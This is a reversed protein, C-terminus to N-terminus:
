NVHQALAHIFLTNLRQRVNKYNGRGPILFIIYNLNKLPGTKQRYITEANTIKSAYNEDLLINQSVANM